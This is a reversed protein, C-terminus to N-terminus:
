PAYVETPNATFAPTSHYGGVALLFPKGGWTIPVM